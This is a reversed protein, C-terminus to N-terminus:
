PVDAVAAVRLEHRGRPPALVGHDDPQEEHASLPPRFDGGTLRDPQRLSTPCSCTAALGNVGDPAAAAVEAVNVAGVRGRIRSGLGSM